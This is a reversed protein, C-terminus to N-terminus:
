SEKRRGGNALRLDFVALDVVRSRPEKGQQSDRDWIAVVVVEVEVVGGGRGRSDEMGGKEVLAVYMVM